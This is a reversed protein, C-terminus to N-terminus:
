NAECAIPTNFGFELGREPAGLLEIVFADFKLGAGEEELASCLAAALEPVQIGLGVWELLLVVPVRFHELPLDNIPRRSVPRGRRLTAVNMEYAYLPHGDAGLMGAMDATIPTMSVDVALPALTEQFRDNVVRGVPAGVLLVSVLLFILALLRFTEFRTVASCPALISTSRSGTFVLLGSRESEM